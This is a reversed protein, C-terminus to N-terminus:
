EYEVDGKKNKTKKIIEYIMWGIVIYRLFILVQGYRDFAFTYSYLSVQYAYALVIFIIEKIRNKIFIAVFLCIIFIFLDIRKLLVLINYVM